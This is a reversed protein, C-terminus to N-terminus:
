DSVWKLTKAIIPLEVALRNKICIAIDRHEKQTDEKTRTTIYHIWSRINGNMYLKTTTSLPLVMRACEKAIGMELAMNYLGKSQQQLLDYKNDFWEKTKEDVDDISNQRNKLDQRRINIPEFSQVKAYRQSFEQFSFSTHRLIQPAIARSTEIEFCANAMEFVSWHNHKICYDLLKSIETNEQNAPNSVRACYAIIQEADPTIWKLLTNM